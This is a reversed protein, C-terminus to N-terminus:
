VKLRQCCAQLDITEGAATPAHCQATDVVVRVGCGFCCHGGVPVLRNDIRVSDVLLQEVYLANLHQASGLSREGASGGRSASDINM